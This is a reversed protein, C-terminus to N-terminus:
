HCDWIGHQTLDSAECGEQLGGASAATISYGAAAIAAAAFAMRLYMSM